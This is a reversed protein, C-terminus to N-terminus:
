QVIGEFKQTDINFYNYKYYNLTIIQNQLQEINHTDKYIYEFAGQINQVKKYDLRFTLLNHDIDGYQTFPSYHFSRKVSIISHFHLQEYKGSREFAYNLVKLSPNNFMLWGLVENIDRQEVLKKKQQCSITLLYLIM